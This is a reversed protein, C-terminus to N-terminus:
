TESTLNRTDSLPAFRSIQEMFWPTNCVTVIVLWMGVFAFHRDKEGHSIFAFINGSFDPSSSGTIISFFLPLVCVASMVSIVVVWTYKPPIWKALMTRRILLGTQSYCCAYLFIGAFIVTDKEGIGTFKEEMLFVALFTLGTMLVIWAIGNAAGSYFFFAPIRMMLSKPIRAAVRPSYGDKESVAHLFGFTFLLVSIYFWIEMGNNKHFFISYFFAAGGTLLWACCVYIRIGLARNASSPSIEAVAITYFFGAALTTLLLAPLATQWFDMGAIRSGVGSRLMDRALAVIASGESILLGLTIIGLVMRFFRNYSSCGMCLAFQISAAIGLFAMCLIVFVSPLDVGRLFWTLTMFPLCASFFLLTIVLGAYLKGRIVTGPLIATAFLLDMNEASRELSMRAGTYVPVFLIVSFVLVGFLIEFADRGLNAARDMNIGTKHSGTIVFAMVLLMIGLFLMLMGVLVRSQVAQRLERVVIPNLRDDIADVIETIM